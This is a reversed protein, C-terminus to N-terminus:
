VFGFSRTKYCTSLSQIPHIDVVYLCPLVIFFYGYFNIQGYTYHMKHSEKELLQSIDSSMFEEQSMPEEVITELPDDGTKYSRNKM